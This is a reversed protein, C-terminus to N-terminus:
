GEKFVAQQKIICNMFHHSPSQDVDTTFYLINYIVLGKNVKCAVGRGGKM